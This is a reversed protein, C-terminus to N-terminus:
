ECEGVHTELKSAEFCCLFLDVYTCRTCFVGLVVNHLVVKQQMRTGDTIVVGSRIAVVKICGEAFSGGEAFVCEM